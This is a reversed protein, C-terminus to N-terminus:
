QRIGYKSMKNLLTKYSVGLLQAAKQRNWHVQELAKEIAACEVPQAADLAVEFLTRTHSATGNSPETEARARDNAVTIDPVSGM